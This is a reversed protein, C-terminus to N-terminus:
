HLDHVQPQRLLRALTSCVRMTRNLSFPNQLSPLMDNPRVSQLHQIQDANSVWQNPSFWGPLYIGVLMSSEPGLVMSLTM